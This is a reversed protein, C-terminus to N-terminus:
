STETKPKSVCRRLKAPTANPICPNGGCCNDTLFGLLDSMSDFHAVYIVFRGENRSGILGSHQLARLHFNLSSPPMDLLRAIDGAPLGAPGVQVLQRFLRLRIPHGIAALMKAADDVTVADTQTITKTKM